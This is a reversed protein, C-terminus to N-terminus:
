LDSQHPSLLHREPIRKELNFLYFLQSQDVTQRGMM